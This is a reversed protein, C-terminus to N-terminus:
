RDEFPMRLDWIPRWVEYELQSRRIGMDHLTRDDMRQLQRRTEQVDRFRKLALWARGTLAALGLIPWALTSGVRTPLHAARRAPPRCLEITAM